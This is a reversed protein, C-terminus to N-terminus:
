KSKGKSNGDWMRRWETRIVECTKRRVYRVIGDDERVCLECMIMFLSGLCMDWGVSAYLCVSVGQLVKRGTRM